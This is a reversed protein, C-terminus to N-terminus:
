DSECARESEIRLGQLAMAALLTLWLWTLESSMATVLIAASYFFKSISEFKM